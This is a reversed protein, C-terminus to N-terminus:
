SVSNCRYAASVTVLCACAFDVNEVDIWEHTARHKSVRGVVHQFPRRGPRLRLQLVQFGGSTRGEHDGTIRV